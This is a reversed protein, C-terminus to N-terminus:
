LLVKSERAVVFQHCAVHMDGHVVSFDTFSVDAQAGILPPPTARPPPRPATVFVLDVTLKGNDDQLQLNSEGANDEIVIENLQCDMQALGSCRLSLGSVGNAQGTRIATQQMQLHVIGSGEARIIM